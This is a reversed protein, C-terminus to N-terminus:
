LKKLSAIFDFIIEGTIGWIIEEEYNYFYVERAVMERSTKYKEPIKMKKINESPINLLQIREVIPDTVMFFEIPIAILKEVEDKNPSLENLNNINITGCFCHIILGLLNLVIGYKGYVEIKNTEIGLEEATERIVTEIPNKDQAEVKGGPFSLEGGQSINSARKELIFYDKGAINCICIFVATEITTNSGIIKFKNEKVLQFIKSKM